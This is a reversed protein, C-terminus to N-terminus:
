LDEKQFKRVIIFYFLVIYVITTSILISANPEKFFQGGVKQWLQFPILNDASRVPFNDGVGSYIRNLFASLIYKLLFIYILYLSVALGARKLVFGFLAGSLIYTVAQLFFYFVYVIKDTSFPMNGKIFGAALATLAVILTSIVSFLLVLIIKSFVFDFRSTGDIINQRHTKFNYENTILILMLLGPIFLVLGSWFTVTQWVDPFDFPNGIIMSIPNPGKTHSNNLNFNMSFNLGVICLVFLVALVWFTRYNRMKLWEIKLSNIM